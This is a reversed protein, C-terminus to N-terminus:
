YPNDSVLIICEKDLFPHPASKIVVLARQRNCFFVSLGSEFHGEIAKAVQFTTKLIDKEIRFPDKIVYDRNIWWLLAIGEKEAYETLKQNLTKGRRFRRSEVHGQWNKKYPRVVMERAQLLKEIDGEPEPLYVINNRIKPGDGGNDGYLNAYFRSLGVAAANNSTKGQSYDLTKDSGAQPASNMVAGAPKISSEDVQGLSGDLSLLFDQNAFFAVALATLLVGLILNRLWFSM